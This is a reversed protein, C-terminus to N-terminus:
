LDTRHRLSSRESQGVGGPCAWLHASGTQRAAEPPRTDTKVSVKILVYVPGQTLHKEGEPHSNVHFVVTLLSDSKDSLPSVWFM